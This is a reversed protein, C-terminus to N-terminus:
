HKKRRRVVKPNNPPRGLPAREIDKLRPDRLHRYLASRSVGLEACVEDPRGEHKSMADRIQREWEEPAVMRLAGLPGANRVNGRSVVAM